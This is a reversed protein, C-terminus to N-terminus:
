WADDSGGGASGMSIEEIDDEIEEAEMDEVPAAAAPLPKAAVPAPAPEAEWKIPARKATNPQSVKTPALRAKGGDTRM